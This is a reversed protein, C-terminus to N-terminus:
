RETLIQPRRREHSDEFLVDGIEVETLEGARVSYVDRYRCLGRPQCRRKEIEVVYDGVCEWMENWASDGQDVSGIRRGNFWVKWLGREKGEGYYKFKVRGSPQGTSCGRSLGYGYLGYPSYAGYTAGVFPGVQDPYVGTRRAFDEEANRFNVFADGFAQRRVQQSIRYFEPRANLPLPGYRSVDAASWVNPDTSAPAAPAAPQAAPPEPEAITPTAARRAPASMSRTAPAPSGRKRITVRYDDFQAENGCSPLITNLAQELDSVDLTRNWTCSPDITSLSEESVLYGATEIVVKAIARVSRPQTSFDLTEQAFATSALAVFAVVFFLKTRM